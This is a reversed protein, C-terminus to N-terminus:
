LQIQGNTLARWPAWCQASYQLLLSFCAALSRYARCSGSPLLGLPVHILCPSPTLPATPFVCCSPPFHRPARPPPLAAPICHVTVEKPPLTEAATQTILPLRHHSPPPFQTGPLPFRCHLAQPPFSDSTPSFARRALILSPIPRSTLPTFLPQFM